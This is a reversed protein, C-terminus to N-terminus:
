CLEPYRTCVSRPGGFPLDTTPTSAAQAAATSQGQTLGRQQGEADGLRRGRELARASALRVAARRDAGMRNRLRALARTQEAADAERQATLQEAVEDDSMRGSQGILIGCVLTVALLALGGAVVGAWTGPSWGQPQAPPAPPPPAPPPTWVAPPPTWAQPPGVWTQQPADHM